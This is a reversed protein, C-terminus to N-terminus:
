KLPLVAIGNGRWVYSTEEDTEGGGRLNPQVSPVANLKDATDLEQTTREPNVYLILVLLFM